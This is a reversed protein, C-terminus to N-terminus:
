DQCSSANQASGLQAILTSKWRFRGGHRVEFRAQKLKLQHATTTICICVYGATVTLMGAQRLRRADRWWM